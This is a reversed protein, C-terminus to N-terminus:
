RGPPGTSLDLLVLFDQHQFLQVDVTARSPELKAASLMM